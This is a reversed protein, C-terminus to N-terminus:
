LPQNPHRMKPLSIKKSQKTQQPLKKSLKGNNLSELFSADWRCKWRLLSAITEDWPLDLHIVQFTVQAFFRSYPTWTRRSTQLLPRTLCRRSSWSSRLRCGQKMSKGWNSGRKLKSRISAGSWMARHVSCASISRRSVSHRKAWFNSLRAGVSIPM